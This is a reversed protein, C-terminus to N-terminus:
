ERVEFTRPSGDQGSITTARQRHGDINRAFPRAVRNMGFAKGM